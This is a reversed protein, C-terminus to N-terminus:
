SEQHKFKNRNGKNVIDLQTIQSTHQIFGYIYDVDLEDKFTVVAAYHTDSGGVNIMHLEAVDSAQYAQEEILYHMTADEIEKKALHISIFRTGNVLLLAAVIIIVVHKGKM